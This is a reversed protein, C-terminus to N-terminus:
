ALRTKKKARLFNKGKKKKKKERKKKKKEEHLTVLM